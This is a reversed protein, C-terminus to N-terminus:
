VHYKADFGRAGVAINYLTLSALLIPVCSRIISKRIDTYPASLFVIVSVACFVRDRWGFTTKATAAVCGVVSATRLVVFQSLVSLCCFIGPMFGLNGRGWWAGTAGVVRRCDLRMCLWRSRISLCSLKKGV